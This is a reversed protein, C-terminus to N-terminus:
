EGDDYESAGNSTVLTLSVSKKERDREREKRERFIRLLLIKDTVM